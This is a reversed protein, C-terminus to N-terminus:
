LDNNFDFGNDINSGHNLGFGDDLGIGNDMGLSNDDLFMSSSIDDEYSIGYPNGGVDVLNNLMFLGTALNIAGPRRAFLSEDDGLAEDNGDSITISPTNAVPIDGLDHMSEPASGALRQQNKLGLGDHTVYERGESVTFVTYEHPKLDRGRSFLSMLNKLM